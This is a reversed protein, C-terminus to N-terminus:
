RDPRLFILRVVVGVVLGSAILYGSLVRFAEKYTVTSAWEALTQEDM